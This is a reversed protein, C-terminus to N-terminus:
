TPLFRIQIFIFYLKFETPKNKLDRMVINKQHFEYLLIKIFQTFSTM